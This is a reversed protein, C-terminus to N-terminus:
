IEDRYLLYQFKCHLILSPFIVFFEGKGREPFNSGKQNISGRREELEPLEAEVPTVSQINAIYLVIVYLHFSRTQMDTYTNPYLNSSITHNWELDDTGSRLFRGHRVLCCQQPLWIRFPGKIGSNNWTVSGSKASPPPPPRLGSDPLAYSKTPKLRKSPLLM